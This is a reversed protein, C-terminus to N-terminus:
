HKRDCTSPCHALHPAYPDQERVHPPPTWSAFLSHLLGTGSFPPLYQWPRRTFYREQLRSGHLYEPLCSPNEKYRRWLPTQKMEESICLSVQLNINRQPLTGRFTHILCVSSTSCKAPLLKRSSCHSDKLLKLRLVLLSLGETIHTGLYEPTEGFSLHLSIQLALPM